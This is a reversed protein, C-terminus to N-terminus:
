VLVNPTTHKLKMNNLVIVRGGGVVFVCMVGVVM